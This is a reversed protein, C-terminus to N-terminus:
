CEKLVKSSRERKRKREKERSDKRRNRRQNVIKMKGSRKIKKRM